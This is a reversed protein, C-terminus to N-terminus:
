VKHVSAVRNLGSDASAAAVGVGAEVRSSERGLLGSRGQLTVDSDLSDLAEVGVDINSAFDEAVAHTGIDM